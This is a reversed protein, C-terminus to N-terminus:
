SVFLLLNLPAGKVWTKPSKPSGFPMGIARDTEEGILEGKREKMRIPGRKTGIVLVSLM